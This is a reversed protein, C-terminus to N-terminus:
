SLQNNSGNVDKWEVVEKWKSCWWVVVDSDDSKLWGVVLVSGCWVVVVVVGCWEVGGGCWVVM